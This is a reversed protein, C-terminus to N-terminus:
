LNDSLSQQRKQTQCQRMVLFNQHSLFLSVSWMTMLRNWIMWKLLNCFVDETFSIFGLCHAQFHLQLVDWL